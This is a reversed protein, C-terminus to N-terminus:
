GSARMRVPEYVQTWIADSVAGCRNRHRYHFADLFSEHYFSVWPGVGCYKRRYFNLKCAIAPNFRRPSPRNKAIRHIDCQLSLVGFNRFLYECFLFMPAETGIEVNM